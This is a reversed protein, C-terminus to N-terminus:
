PQFFGKTCYIQLVIPFQGSKFDHFVLIFCKDFVFSGKAMGVFDICPSSKRRVTITSEM